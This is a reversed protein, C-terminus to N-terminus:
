PAVVGETGTSLVAKALLLAVRALTTVANVSLTAGSIGDISRDLETGETELGIAEFQDTFFPYRIEWGHSERYVLVNMTEMRDGSIIFGVTIPKVKGIEELIWATRKGRQWYSIRLKPYRHGLISEVSKGLDGKLWVFSKVPVTGEFADALFEDANLYVSEKESAGSMAFSAVWVCLILLM